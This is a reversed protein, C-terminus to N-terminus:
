LGLLRMAEQREEANKAFDGRAAQTMVQSGQKQTGRMMMCFHRASVVVFVGKPQLVDVFADAIQDTLHEQLQLRRSFVDILKAIDGLGIIKGNPKYAVHIQGFFPLLHHECLSYFETNKQAVIGTTPSPFVGGQVVAGPAMDNGSTLFRLSEAVLSPTKLLGERSPDEGLSKLIIRIQQEM